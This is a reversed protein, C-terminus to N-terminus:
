LGGITLHTRDRRFGQDTREAGYINVAAGSSLTPLDSVNRIPQLVADCESAAAVARYGGIHAAVQDAVRAAQAAGSHDNHTQTPPTLAAHRAYTSQSRM